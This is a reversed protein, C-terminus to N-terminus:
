DKYIFHNNREIINYRTYIRYIQFTNEDIQLMLIIYIEIKLIRLHM